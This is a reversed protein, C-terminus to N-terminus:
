SKGPRATPWFTKFIYGELHCGWNTDDDLWDSAEENAYHKILRGFGADVVQIEDTNGPLLNHM